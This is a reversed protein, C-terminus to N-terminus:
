DTLGELNLVRKIERLKRHRGSEIGSEYVLTLQPSLVEGDCSHYNGIKGLIRRCVIGRAPFPSVSTGPEFPKRCRPCKIVIHKVKSM